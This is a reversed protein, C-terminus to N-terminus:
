AVEAPKTRLADDEACLTEIGALIRRLADCQFGIRDRLPVDWNRHMLLKVAAGIKAPDEGFRHSIQIGAAAEFATVREQLAKLQDASPDRRALELALNRQTRESVLADVDAAPVFDNKLYPIAEAAGRLLAAVFPVSFAEPTLMPAQKKITLGVGFAEMWGWTPPIIDLGERIVNKDTVIWWFHCFRQVAESKEPQKMEHRYDGRSVKIEFGHLHLGRSPWVSMAVADATRSRHGGTGNSLQPLFAFEPAAFKKALRAEVDAATLGNMGRMKRNHRDTM